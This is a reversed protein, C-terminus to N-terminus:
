IKADGAGQRLLWDRVIPMLRERTNSAPDELVKELLLRLLAGVAPGPPVGAELLDEGSLALDAVSIPESYAARLARRFLQSTGILPPARRVGSAAEARWRAYVVRFADRFYTRGIRSVWRRVQSDTWGDIAAAFLRQELDLWVSAAHTFWETARNSFRLERATDNADKPALGLFLTALRNRQRSLALGPNRTADPVGIYDAAAFAYDPQGALRPLLAALAGSSRWLMMASSPRRVQEMTKELEERVRERSLRGLHPVSAVVAAWTEPEITFGFRAAFRLARLARLRDEVMRAAPTGVARVIRQELDQLGGFPDYFEGTAPRYAMANITFDRRALDEHLSAGFEVVAHRGDTLVDRRFTTVEHMTGDRDLVGVTGFEVGVPVTRRFVAMVQEPRAATALDWDLHPKGLLADRVAGGVCWTEFGARELRAAIELVQPPPNIRAGRTREVM